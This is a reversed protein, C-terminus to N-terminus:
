REDPEDYNHCGTFCDPTLGVQNHCRDCFDERSTHCGKCDRLGQQDRIGYRVVDERIRRLYEWHYLRMEAAKMGWACTGGQKVKSEYFKGPKDGLAVVGSVVYYGLPLLMIVLIAALLARRNGPRSNAAKEPM